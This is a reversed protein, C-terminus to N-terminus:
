PSRRSGSAAAVFVFSSSTGVAISAGPATRYSWMEVLGGQTFSYARVASAGPLTTSAAPVCTLLLTATDAIFAVSMTTQFCVVDVSKVRLNAPDITAMVAIANNASDAYYLPALFYDTASTASDHLTYPLTYTPTSPAVIAFDSVPVTWMISGNGPSVGVYKTGCVLVAVADPAERSPHAAIAAL